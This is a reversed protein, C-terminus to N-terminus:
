LKRVGPVQAPMVAASADAAHIVAGPAAQGPKLLAAAAKAANKKQQQQQRAPQATTETAAAPAPGAAQKPKRTKVAFSVRISEAAPLAFTRDGIFAAV